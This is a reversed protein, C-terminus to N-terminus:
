TYNGPAIQSGNALQGFWWSELTYQGGSSRYVESKMPYKILDNANDRAPDFYYYYGSNKM